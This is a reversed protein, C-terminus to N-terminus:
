QIRIWVRGDVKIKQDGWEEYNPVESIIGIARLPYKEEEEDTMISVTGNPGSCVAQGIYRKFEEIDEYPYALVRGSVAIPTTYQNKENQGIAAGFTDSLIACGKQLRQISLSLTGDGTEYVCQGFRQEENQNKLRYEVYDNGNATTLTGALWENGTWTLRRADSRSNSTGNGVIEVYTGRATPTGNSSFTNYEGFVHTSQDTAVTQYGEAHSYHGSAQTQRGEAHSCFGSATVSSGETHSYNGSATTQYGEAHSYKGSAQTGSGEAHSCSATATTGSGEAHSSGGSANTMNGEAHSYKGSANTMNGEATANQGLSNLNNIMGARVRFNNLDEETVELPAYIEVQDISAIKVGINNYSKVNIKNVKLDAQENIKYLLSQTTKNLEVLTVYKNM